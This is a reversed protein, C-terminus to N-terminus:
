NLVFKKLMELKKRNDTYIIKNFIQIPIGERLKQVINEFDLIIKNMEAESVELLKLQYIILVLYDTITKFTLNKIHTANKIANGLQSAIDGSCFRTDFIVDNHAISNRLDKIAFILRQPMMSATDDAQM